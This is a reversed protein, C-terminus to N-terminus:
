DGGLACLHLEPGTRPHLVKYRAWNGLTKAPEIVTRHVSARCNLVHIVKGLKSNTGSKHCIHKISQVTELSHESCQPSGYQGQKNAATLWKSTRALRREM